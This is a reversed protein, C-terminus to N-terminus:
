EPAPQLDELRAYQDLLEAEARALVVGENM